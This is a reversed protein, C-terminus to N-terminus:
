CVLIGFVGREGCLMETAHFVGGPEGEEKLVSKEEGLVFVRSIRERDKLGGIVRDNPM